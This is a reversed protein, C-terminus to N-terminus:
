SATGLREGSGQAEADAAEGDLASLQDTLYDRLRSRYEREFTRLHEIETSLAAKQRNLEGTVQERRRATEADLQAAKSKAEDTIKEAQSRADAVLVEAEAHAEAVLEDANRTALELLRAARGSASKDAASVGDPEASPVVAAATVSTVSTASSSDASDQASSTSEQPTAPGGATEVSMAADQETALRTLEAEVEDLFADVETMDYGERLRVPTFRKNRVDDPTLPM